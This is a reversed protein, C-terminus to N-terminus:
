EYWLLGHFQQTTFQCCSPRRYAHFAALPCHHAMQPAHLFLLKGVIVAATLPQVVPKILRQPLAAAHLFQQLCGLGLAISVCPEPPHQQRGIQLQRHLRQWYLQGIQPQQRGVFPPAPQQPLHM